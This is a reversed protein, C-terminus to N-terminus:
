ALRVGELTYEETFTDVRDLGGLHDTVWRRLDALVRARVDGTVEVGGMTSAAEWRELVSGATTEGRWAAVVRKEIAEAGSVVFGELLARTRDAGSPPVLGREQLVAERQQRLRSRVGSREVRGVLFCGHPVCVRLVEDRLHAPELLHASRSAFVTGVSSDRVPWGRDADAVVLLPRGAGGVALKARFVELMPRSVDFGVYGRAASALETGVEGTGAGVELVALEDAAPGTLETVAAAVRRAADEPLGRTDDFTAAQADFRRM